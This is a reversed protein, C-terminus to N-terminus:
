SGLNIFPAFYHSPHGNGGSFQASSVDDTILNFHSQLDKYLQDNIEVLGSLRLRLQERRLELQNSINMLHYLVDEKTKYPFTQILQLEGGKQVTVIFFEKYLRLSIVDGDDTDGMARKIIHSYTHHYTAGPFKHELIELCNRNIRYVNMICPMVTLHEHRVEADYDPGSVMDLYSEALAEDFKMVPVPVCYEDNIYIHTGTRKKNVLKSNAWVHDIIDEPHKAEDASFTYLEFGSIAQKDEHVTMCALHTRSLEVVLRDKDNISFDPTYNSFYNDPM